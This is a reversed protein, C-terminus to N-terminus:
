AFGYDAFVYANSSISEITNQYHTLIIATQYCVVMHNGVIILSSYFNLFYGTRYDSIIFHIFIIFFPNQHYLIAICDYLPVLNCM